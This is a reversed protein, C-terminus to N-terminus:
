TPDSIAVRTNAKAKGSLKFGKTKSVSAICITAYKRYVNENTGKPLFIILFNQSHKTLPSQIYQKTRSDNNRHFKPLNLM